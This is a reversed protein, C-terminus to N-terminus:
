RCTKSVFLSMLKSQPSFTNKSSTFWFSGFQKLITEMRAKVMGFSFASVHCTFCPQAFSELILELAEVALQSGQSTVYILETLSHVVQQFVNQISKKIKLSKSLLVNTDGRKSSIIRNPSPPKPCMKHWRVGLWLFDLLHANRPVVM